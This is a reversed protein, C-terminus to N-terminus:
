TNASGTKALDMGTTMVSGLGGMSADQQQKAVDTFQKNQALYDGPSKLFQSQFGGAQDLFKSQMTQFKTWDAAYNMFGGTTSPAAAPAVTTTTAQTAAALGLLIAVSLSMTFRKQM